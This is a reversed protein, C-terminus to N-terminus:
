PRIRNAHGVPESSRPLTPAAAGYDPKLGTVFSRPQTIATLRRLAMWERFPDGALHRMMAESLDRTM